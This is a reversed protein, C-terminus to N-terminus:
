GTAASCLMKLQRTPRLLLLLGWVQLNSMGFEDAREQHLLTLLGDLRADNQAVCTVLPPRVDKVQLGMHIGIGIQSSNNHKHQYAASM